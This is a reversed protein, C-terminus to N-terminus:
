ELGVSHRSKSRERKARNIDAARHQTYGSKFTSYPDLSTAYIDDILQMNQSRKDVATVGWVVYSAGQDIYNVPSMFADALRGVADRANSPGIIPLVIYPGTGAGYIALTQGFDTARYSLGAESAVDFVGLLGFTSNLAFTWFTAFSNYPDAQLISNGFSVPMYLNRLANSVMEEGKDPMVFRYGVTVPRLIVTDVGYNFHYIARNLPRLPDSDYYSEEQNEVDKAAQAPLALLALAICPLLMLTRIQKLSM